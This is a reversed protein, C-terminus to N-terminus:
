SGARGGSPETTLHGDNIRIVRDALALMTPDHTSVLVTVGESEVVGRLLAMVSLGTEADLQGTPEDAILLRPSAALARAIAVRQQQGGSLEGPLQEAHDALGVLELLLAVRREREGPRVRALRLPAGVNEAASLVPILGFTQFVYSVKERRLLSLGDEDLATVDTGDVLVAGSDPRDLGGIVNLLTTKGSGSRGVLATMTGATLDFTVDRLAHVANAGSGFSRHVGRVSVLPGRSM